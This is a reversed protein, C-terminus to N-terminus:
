ARVLKNYAIRHPQDADAGKRRKLSEIYSQYNGEYGGVVSIGDQSRIPREGRWGPASVGSGYRVGYALLHGVRAFVTPAGAAPVTARLVAAPVAHHAVRALTRGYADMSALIGYSSPRLVSTGNEVARFAAMAAHGDRM